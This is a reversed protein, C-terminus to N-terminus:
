DRSLLITAPGVADGVDYWLVLSSGGIADVGYTLQISAEFTEGAKIDEILVTGAGANVDIETWWNAAPSRDVLRINLKSIDIDSKARWTVNLTDGAKPLDEGYLNALDCYGEYNSIISMDQAGNVWPHNTAVEFFAAYKEIAVDRTTVHPAAPVENSTDTSDAVKEFTLVAPGNVKDVGEMQPNEGADQDYVFVLTYDGKVDKELVYDINMEVPEGAKINEAVFVNAEGLITWYNAAPSQDTVHCFLKPIDIDSTFKARIQITDGAQPKDTKVLKFHSTDKLSQYNPGYQNYPMSWKEGADFPDLVYSRPHTSTTAAGKSSGTSACSVFLGCLALGVAALSLLKKM